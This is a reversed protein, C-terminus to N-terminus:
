ELRLSYLLGKISVCRSSRRIEKNDKPIKTTYTTKFKYFLNSIDQEILKKNMCSKCKTLSIDGNELRNLEELPLDVADVVRVRYNKMKWKLIKAKIQV